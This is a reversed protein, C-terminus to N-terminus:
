SSLFFSLLPLCFSITQEIQVLYIKSRTLILDSLLMDARCVSGASLFSGKALCQMIRGSHLLLSALWGTMPHCTRIKM